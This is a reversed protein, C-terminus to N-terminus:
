PPVFIMHVVVRVQCSTIEANGFCNTRHLLPPHHEHAVILATLVLRIDTKSRLKRGRFAEVEQQMVDASENTNGHCTCSKICESDGQRLLYIIGQLPRREGGRNISTLARRSSDGGTLSGQRNARQHIRGCLRFIKRARPMDKWQASMRPARKTSSTMCLGRHVQHMECAQLRSRDKALGQVAATFRGTAIDDKRQRPFPAYTDEVNIANRAVTLFV